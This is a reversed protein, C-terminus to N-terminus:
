GREKDARYGRILREKKKKKKKKVFNSLAHSQQKWNRYTDMRKMKTLGAGVAENRKSHKTKM